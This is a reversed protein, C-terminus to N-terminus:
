EVPKCVELAQRHSEGLHARMQGTRREASQAAASTSPAPEGVVQRLRIETIKMQEAAAISLEKYPTNQYRCPLQLVSNVSPDESDRELDACPWHFPGEPIM